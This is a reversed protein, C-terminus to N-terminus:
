EGEKPKVFVEWYIEFMMDFSERLTSDKLAPCPRMGQAKKVEHCSDFLLSPDKKLMQWVRAMEMVVFPDDTINTPNNITHGVLTEQIWTPVRALNKFIEWMSEKMNGWEEITDAHNSWTFLVADFAQIFARALWEFQVKSVKDKKKNFSRIRPAKVQLFRKYITNALRTVYFTWMGSEIGEIYKWFAWENSISIEVMEAPNLIDNKKLWRSFNTLFKPFVNWPKWWLINEKVPDLPWFIERCEWLIERSIKSIESM